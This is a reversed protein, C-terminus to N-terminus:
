RRAVVVLAVLATVAFGVATLATRAVVAGATRTDQAPAHASADPSADATDPSLGPRGTGDRRRRATLALDLSWLLGLASVAYGMVGLQAPLVRLGVLSGIAVSMATRRWALSTREVHLGPLEPM